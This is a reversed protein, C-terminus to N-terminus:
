AQKIVVLSLDDTPTGFATLDSTLADFIQRAGLHKVERVKQELRLPVYPGDPGSHETLGDSHILLIDGRGMLTWENIEYREKFGLVSQTTSRDIVNFSPLMGLPPFSLCLHPSVDMFRDHQNSFVTPYPQGASLFRFKADESIEGYIFSM